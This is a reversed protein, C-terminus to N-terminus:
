DRAEAVQRRDRRRRDEIPGRLRAEGTLRDDLERAAVVGGEGVAQLDAGPAVATRDAPEVDVPEAVGIEVDAIEVCLM